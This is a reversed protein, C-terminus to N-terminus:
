DSKWLSRAAHHSLTGVALDLGSAVTDLVNTGPEGSFLKIERSYGGRVIVSQAAAETPLLVVVALIWIRM